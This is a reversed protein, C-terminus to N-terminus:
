QSRSLARRCTHEHRRQNRTRLGEREEEWDPQSRTYIQKHPHYCELYASSSSPTSPSHRSSTTSSSNCALSRTRNDGLFSHFGSSTFTPALGDEEHLPSKFATCPWGHHDIKCHPPSAPNFPVSSILLRDTCPASAFYIHPTLSSGTSGNPAFCLCADCSWDHPDRAHRETMTKGAAHPHAKRIKWGKRMSPREGKKITELVRRSSHHGFVRWWSLDERAFAEPGDAHREGIIKM